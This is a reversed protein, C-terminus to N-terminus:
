QIYCIWRSTIYLFSSRTDTDLSGPELEALEIFRTTDQFCINSWDFDVIPVKGYIDTFTTDAVCGDSTALTKVSLSVSKLGPDRFFMMPNQDKEFRENNFNWEWRIISDEEFVKTVTSLDTFQISDQACLTGIDFNVIPKPHIRITVPAVSIGGTIPDTVTYTVVHTDVTAFAPDLIGNAGDIIGPGDWTGSSINPNLDDFLDVLGQNVCYDQGPKTAFEIDPIEDIRIIKSDGNVCGNLDTYTYVLNDLVFSDGPPITVASPVYFGGLVGLGTWVGPPSVQDALLSQVPDSQAYQNDVPSIINVIPLPNIIIIVDDSVIPCPGGPGSGDPDNSSLTLTVAGASIEVPTPTYTSLPDNGGSFVGGGGSWSVSTTARSFSGNLQAVEDACIEFDLGADVEAPPNVTVIVDTFPGDCGNASPTIRYTVTGSITNNPNILTQAILNGAGDNAGLIGNTVGVVTWSFTTGAVANPNTISINTLGNSCVAEDGSTAITPTPNVTVIVIIPDGDCGNAKPTVTYTAAGTTNTNNFLQQAIATGSDDVGGTVGGSESVTWSFTTGTVLNPNVLIINSFDGDCITQVNQSAAVDPEPNVTVTRTITSPGPCGNANVSFVYDLSEVTNGTNILIDTITAGNLYTTGTSSFGIINASTPIVNTLTIVANATPSAIDIDTTAQSCITALNNTVTFTPTPNITVM